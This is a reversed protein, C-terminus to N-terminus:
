SEIALSDLLEVPNGVLAKALWGVGGVAEDAEGGAQEGAENLVGVDLGQIM